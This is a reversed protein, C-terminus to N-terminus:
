FGEEEAMEIVKAAQEEPLNALLSWIHVHAEKAM